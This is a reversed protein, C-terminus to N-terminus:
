GTLLITHMQLLFLSWSNWLLRDELSNLCFASLMFCKPHPWRVGDDEITSQQNKKSLPWIATLMIFTKWTLRHVSNCRLYVNTINACDIIRGVALCSGTRVSVLVLLAVLKSFFPFCVGTNQGSDLRHPRCQWIFLCFLIGQWYLHAWFDYQFM